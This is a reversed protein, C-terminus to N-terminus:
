RDDAKNTTATHNKEGQEQTTARGVVQGKVRTVWQGGEKQTVVDNKKYGM